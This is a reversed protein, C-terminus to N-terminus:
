VMLPTWGEADRDSPAALRREFLDQIGEINNVRAYKMVDADEPVVAFTSIFPCIQSYGRQDPIKMVSLKLGRLKVLSSAPLFEITVRYTKRTSPIKGTRYDPSAKQKNVTASVTVWLLGITWHFTWSRTWQRMHQSQLRSLPKLSSSGSIYHDHSVTQNPSDHDKPLTESSAERLPNESQTFRELTGRDAMSGLQQTMEDIKQSIADLQNDPNAKYTAFCQKVTPLIVRRLETRIIRALIDETPATMVTSSRVNDSNVRIQSLSIEIADLKDHTTSQGKSIAENLNTLASQVNEEASLSRESTQNLSDLRIHLGTTVSDLDKKHQLQGQELRLLLDEHLDIGNRQAFSQLGLILTIQRSDLREIVEAVKRRDLVWNLRRRVRGSSPTPLLMLLLDLDTKISIIEHNVADPLFSPLGASVQRQRHLAIFDDLTRLISQVSQVTRQFRQSLEPADRLYRISDYLVNCARLAVDIVSALSAVTALVEAM